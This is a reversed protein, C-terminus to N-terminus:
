ASHHSQSTRSPDPSFPIEGEASLVRRSRFLNGAIRRAVQRNYNFTLEKHDVIDVITGILLLGGTFLYLLGIGVQGLVFRQLGPVSVMGIVSLILITQPDKRERRYAFAFQPVDAASMSATLKAVFSREPEDLEPLYHTIIHPM